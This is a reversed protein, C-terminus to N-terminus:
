RPDRREQEDTAEAAEAAASYRDRVAADPNGCRLEALDEVSEMLDSRLTGAIARSGAEPQGDHLVQRPKM